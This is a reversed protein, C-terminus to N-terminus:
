PNIGLGAFETRSRIERLRAYVTSRSVGLERAAAAVSGSLVLEAVERLEAPLEAVAARVARAIADSEDRAPIEDTLPDTPGGYRKATRRDRVLNEGYYKVVRRVFAAWSGRKPNFRPRRQLVHLTLEQELDVRDQARLGARGVLRRAKSKIIAAAAPDLPDDPKPSSVSDSM